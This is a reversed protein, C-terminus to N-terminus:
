LLMLINETLIGTGANDSRSFYTSDIRPRELAVVNLIVISRTLEHSPAFNEM